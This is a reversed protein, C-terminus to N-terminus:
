KWRGYRWPLYFKSDKPLNEPVPDFGDTGSPRCRVVRALGMWGGKWFGFKWIADKTYESCSPLHRCNRGAFASLTYRYIQILLVAIVKFPFDIAKGLIKLFQKM